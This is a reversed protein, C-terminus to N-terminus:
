NMGKTNKFASAIEIAAVLYKIRKGALLWPVIFDAVQEMRTRRKTLGFSVRLSVFEKRCTGRMLDNGMLM